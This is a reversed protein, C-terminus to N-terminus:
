KIKVTGASKGASAVGMSVIYELYEAEAASRMNWKLGSEEM